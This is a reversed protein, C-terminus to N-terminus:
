GKSVESEGVPPSPNEENSTVSPIAVVPQEPPAKEERGSAPGAPSEEERKFIGLHRIQEMKELLGEPIPTSKTYDDIYVDLGDM